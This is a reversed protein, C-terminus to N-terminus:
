FMSEWGKVLLRLANAMEGSRGSAKKYRLLMYHQETGYDESRCSKWQTCFENSSAFSIGRSQSSQHNRSVASTTYIGRSSSRPSSAQLKSIVAARPALLKAYPALSLTRSLDANYSSTQTIISRTVVTDKDVSKTSVSVIDLQLLRTHESYRM